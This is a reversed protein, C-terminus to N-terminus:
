PWDLEWGSWPTPDLRISRPMIVLPHSSLMFFSDCARHKGNQLLLSLYNIKDTSNYLWISMYM